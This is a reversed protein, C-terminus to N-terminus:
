QRSDELLTVGFAERQEDLSTEYNIESLSSCVHRLITKCGEESVSTDQLDEHDPQHLMLSRIADGQDAKDYGDHHYDRVAAGFIAVLLLIAGFVGFTGKWM